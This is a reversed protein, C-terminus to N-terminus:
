FAEEPLDMLYLTSDKIVKRALGIRPLEESCFYKATAIKGMYFFKEDGKADEVKDVAIGAQRVLLWGIVLESLAFLIRTSHLGIHYLSEGAKGMMIELIGGFDQLSRALSAREAALTDGGVEEVLTAQIKGM